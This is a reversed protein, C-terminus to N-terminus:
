LGGVANNIAGIQADIDDSDHYYLIDQARRQMEADWVDAGEPLSPDYFQHINLSPKEEMVSLLYNKGASQYGGSFPADFPGMPILGSFAAQHYWPMKSFDELHGEERLRRGRKIDSVTNAMRNIYDMQSKKWRREKERRKKRKTVEKQEVTNARTSAINSQATVPAPTGAFGKLKYRQALELEGEYEYGEINTEVYKEGDWEFEVKTNIWTM